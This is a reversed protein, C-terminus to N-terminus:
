VLVGLVKVLSTGSVLGLAGIAFNQYHKMEDSPEYYDSLKPEINVTNEYKKLELLSKNMANMDQNAQALEEKLEAIHDKWGMDKEYWENKAKTPKLKVKPM